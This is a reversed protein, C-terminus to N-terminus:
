GDQPRVHLLRILKQEKDGPPTTFRVDGHWFGPISGTSRIRTYLSLLAAPVLVLSLSLYIYIYTCIYVWRQSCLGRWFICVCIYIYAHVYVSVCMEWTGIYTYTGAHASIYVAICELIFIMAFAFPLHFDHEVSQSTCATEM